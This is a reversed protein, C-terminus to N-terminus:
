GFDFLRNCQAHRRGLHKCQLQYRGRLQGEGDKNWGHFLRAFLRRGAPDRYM